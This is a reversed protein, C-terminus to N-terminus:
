TIARSLANVLASIGDIREISRKKSVKMNEAADLEVTVNGANWRLIPNGGHRLRGQLVLTELAKTPATLSGLTQPVPVAPVGDAHLRPLLRAANWPDIAISEIQYLQALEHLRQEIRDQDIVNGETLTLFGHRAWVDFPVRDRRVREVLNDEP